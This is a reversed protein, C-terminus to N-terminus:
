KNSFFEDNLYQEWSYRENPDKILLKRILDDLKSDNTKKLLKQGINIKNILANETNGKFPYEKFFLQYIIIGLSWLDCKSNYKEDKIIEPAMTLLTGTHTVCKSMNNLQKSIGYDTLKVIFKQKDDNDEYKILINALKLDRHIIKNNKMIKFTNNLQSLIGRIEEATFGNKRENLLLQLSTDCLEMVIILNEKTNYYEYYKISNNNTNNNSCIEMYKIENLLKYQFENFAGENDNSNFEDRLNEKISEKNIFKIARLKGNEKMKAKYVEGFGGKAIKNLIEYKNEFDEHKNEIIIKNM